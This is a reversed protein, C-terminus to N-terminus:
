QDQKRIIRSSRPIEDRHQLLKQLLEEDKLTREFLRSAAKKRDTATENQLSTERARNSEVSSRFFSKSIINEIEKFFSIERPDAQPVKVRKEELKSTTFLRKALNKFDM